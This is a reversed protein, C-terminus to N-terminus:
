LIVCSTKNNDSEQDSVNLFSHQGYVGVDTPKLGNFLLDKILAANALEESTDRFERTMQVYEVDRAQTDIEYIQCQIEVVKETSELIEQGLGPNETLANVLDKVSSYAYLYM